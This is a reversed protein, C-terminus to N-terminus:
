RYYPLVSCKAPKRNTGANAQWLFTGKSNKSNGAKKEAGAIIEYGEDDLDNRTEDLKYETPGQTPANCDKICIESPLPILSQLIDKDPQCLGANSTILALVQSIGLLKILAVEM